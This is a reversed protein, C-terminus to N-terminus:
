FGGGKITINPNDIINKTEFKEITSNYILVSGDQLLTSDVDVLNALSQSPGIGITKAQFRHKPQVSRAFVKNGQTLIKANITQNVM